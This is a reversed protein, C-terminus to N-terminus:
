HFKFWKFLYSPLEISLIFKAWTMPLLFCQKSNWGKELYDITMELLNDAHGEKRVVASPVNEKSSLSLIVLGYIDKQSLRM